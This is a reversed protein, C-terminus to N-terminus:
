APHSSPLALTMMMHLHWGGSQPFKRHPLLPLSVHLHFYKRSVDKIIEKQSGWPWLRLRVLKGWSFAGIRCTHWAYSSNESNEKGGSSLYLLLPPDARRFTSVKLFLTQRLLGNPLMPKLEFLRMQGRWRSRTRLAQRNWIRIEKELWWDNRCMGKFILDFHGDSQWVTTECRAREEYEGVAAVVECEILIRCFHEWISCLKVDTPEKSTVM